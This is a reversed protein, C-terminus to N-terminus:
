PIPSSRLKKPGAEDFIVWAQRVAPEIGKLIHHREACEFLQPDLIANMKLMQPLDRFLEAMQLVIEPGLGREIHRVALYHKAIRDRALWLLDDRPLEHNFISKLIQDFFGAVAYFGNTPTGGILDPLHYLDSTNIAIGPGNRARPNWDRRNLPQM